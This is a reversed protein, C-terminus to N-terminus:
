KRRRKKKVPRNFIYCRQKFCCCGYVICLSLFSPLVSLVFTPISWYYATPLKNKTKNQKKKTRLSSLFLYLGINMWVYQLPSSIRCLIDACCCCCCLKLFCLFHNICKLRTSYHIVRMVLEIRLLWSYHFKDIIIFCNNLVNKGRLM